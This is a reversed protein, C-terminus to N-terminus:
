RVKLRATDFEDEQEGLAALSLRYSVDAVADTIENGLRSHALVPSQEMIEWYRWRRIRFRHEDVGKRGRVFGENELRSDLDEPAIGYDSFEDILENLTQGINKEVDAVALTLTKGDVPDLQRLGHITVESRNQFGSCKVEVDASGSSFDHQYRNPGEWLEIAHSGLEPDQVLKLLFSLEGFLGKAESESIPVAALALLKRFSSAAAAIAKLPAAGADLHDFVAGLFDVFTSELSKELCIVKISDAEHMPLDVDSVRDFEVRIVSSVDIPQFRGEDTAFFACPLGQYDYGFWSAVGNRRAPGDQVTYRNQDNSRANLSASQFLGSLEKKINM